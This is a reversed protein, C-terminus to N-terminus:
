ITVGTTAGVLSSPMPSENIDKEVVNTDAITMAILTAVVIPALSKTCSSCWNAM